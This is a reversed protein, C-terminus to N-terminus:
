GTVVTAIQECMEKTLRQLEAASVPPEGEGMTISSLSAHLTYSGLLVHCRGAAVSGESVGKSYAEDGIDLAMGGEATLEKDVDFMAAAADETEFRWLSVNGTTNADGVTLFCNGAAVLDRESVQKESYDMSPEEAVRAVDFTPCVDFAGHPDAEWSGVDPADAPSTAGVGTTESPSSSENSSETATPSPGNNSATDPDDNCASIALLVILLSATKISAFLNPMRNESLSM